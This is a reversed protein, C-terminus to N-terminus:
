LFSKYKSVEDAHIFKNFLLHRYAQPRHLLADIFIIVNNCELYKDAFMNCRQCKCLAISRSIGEGYCVLLKPLEIGCEICIPMTPLHSPAKASNAWLKCYSVLIHREFSNFSHMHSIFETNYQFQCAIFKNHFGAYISASLHSTSYAKM